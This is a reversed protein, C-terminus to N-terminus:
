LGIKYYFHKLLYPKILNIFNERSSSFIYLRYGNTTLHSNCNLKFKERLILVLKNVEEKTFSETSLYFGNNFKYGDDMFWYALGRARLLDKLNNPLIKIELENYFNERYFNFCNLSYTQFKISYYIKNKNSRTDLRSLNIPKSGCYEKFLSYLHHIYEENILSQKFQLRTNHNKSPKEATLDGLICGILIDNLESRV